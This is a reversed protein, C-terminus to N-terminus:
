VTVAFLEAPQIEAPVLTVISACGAVGGAGVALADRWGVQVVAVPVIVMVAGVPM